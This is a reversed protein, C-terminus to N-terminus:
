LAVGSRESARLWQDWLQLHGRACEAAANEDRSEIISLCDNHGSVAAERVAFKVQAVERQLYATFLQIQGRMIRWLHSLRSQRAATAVLDHFEIDLLTVQSLSRARKLQEINERMAKLDHPTHNRAALRFMEMELLLRVDYIEHLDVQTLTRVRCRGRGEFELLGDRELVLTAERVPVRSVGLREATPIEAVMTGAALQGSIIEERLQNAVSEALTQKSETPIVNSRNHLTPATKM